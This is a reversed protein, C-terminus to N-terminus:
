KRKILNLVEQLEPFKFLWAGLVYYAAGAIVGVILQLWLTPLAKVILWVLVGMILSHVLIPLMNKMQKLFGYGILDENYYTNIALCVLSSAIRGYCMVVLGFPLTAVLVIICVMKKIIELRLFYDSRGKVLLINLNVAHIPWWMLDFCIIQLYIISEAWKDTLLLRIFPDAVAALGVMAPFVVFASMNLLRKYAGALREEDNQISSLAPYTVQQLMSTMSSSPFAAFSEARNYYGLASPKFAKGIVLSYINNFITDLLSSGLLKSGFGFMEKFSAKSFVLRPRWNVMLWMLVTRLVSGVISQVVLAWVGYGKHAMWLGVAGIVATCVITIVARRRFDMRITLQTEHVARFANIVLTLSLIRTVKTLLPIDYFSAILPATVWLLLCCFASVAVNFWYVTSCDAETRDPKRILASAFGSDIFTNAVALFIGLMAVVGYDEPLLIRAILINFVFQIGQATFREVASWAVGKVTKTKLSPESM